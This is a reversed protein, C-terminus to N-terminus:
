EGQFKDWQVLENLPRRPTPRPTEDPYGICLLAVPIVGDPAAIVQAVLREHFAGVWCSGLGQDTAALHAVACAISADQTAYLQAGRSGYKGQSRAPHACFVLVAPARAVPPQGLACRSLERRLGADRVVVIEYSQLNGASPARNAARLVAHLQTKDLERDEFARVSRRLKILKHFDM